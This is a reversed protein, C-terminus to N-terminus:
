PGDAERRVCSLRTPDANRYYCRDAGVDQWRLRYLDEREARAGPLAFAIVVALVVCTALLVLVLNRGFHDNEMGGELAAWNMPPDTPPQWNRAPGRGSKVYNDLAPNPRPPPVPHTSGVRADMM